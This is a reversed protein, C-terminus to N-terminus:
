RCPGLGPYDTVVADIPWRCYADVLAQSNLTGIAVKLGADRMTEIARRETVQYPFAIGDAQADRTIDVLEQVGLMTLAEAKLAVPTESEGPPFRPWGLLVELTPDVAKLARTIEPWDASLYWPNPLAAARWADVVARALPEPEPALGPEYKIDIHVVMDPAAALAETLEAFTMHTDPSVEAGPTDEDPFAGCRYGAQLEALTLERIVVRRSLHEGSATACLQEDLRLNHSLVLVDDRTAAVDIEIGQDHRELTARVAARSNEPWYGAGARHAETRPVGPADRWGCAAVLCAGALLLPARQSM